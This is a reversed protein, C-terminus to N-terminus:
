KVEVIIEIEVAWNHPITMGVASRAHRGAEGFVEILLDSCGHIVAPTDDFDPAVNVMGLVKVVQVVNDLSGALTKIAALASLTSLRAAEYGEEVSVERGVKGKIAKGGWNSVQGSTYILNGTRRAHMLRGANLEVPELTYGMERLKAEFSM